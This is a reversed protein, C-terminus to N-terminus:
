VATLDGGIQICHVESEWAEGQSLRYVVKVQGCLEQVPTYLNM